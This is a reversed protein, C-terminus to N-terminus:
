MSWLIKVAWLAYFSLAFAVIVKLGLGVSAPRAYDILVDRVGIWAHILLSFLLLLTALRVRNSAFLVKWQDFGSPQELLYIAALFIALIAGALATLRQMLWGRMGHHPVPINRKVM